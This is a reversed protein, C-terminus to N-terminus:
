LLYGVIVQVQRIGATCLNPNTDDDPAFQTKDGHNIERDKHPFFQPKSPMPHGYNDLVDRIYNEM